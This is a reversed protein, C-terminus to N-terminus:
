PGTTSFMDLRHPPNRFDKLKSPQWLIVSAASLYTTIWPQLEKTFCLGPYWIDRTPKHYRYLDIFMIKSQFSKSKQKNKVSSKCLGTTVNFLQIQVVAFLNCVRLIKTLSNCNQMLKTNICLSEQILVHYFNNLYNSQLFKM